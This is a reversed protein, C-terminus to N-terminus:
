PHYEILTSYGAANKSSTTVGVAWLGGGPVATISALGSDLGPFAPNAVLSWVGNVSQLILPAHVGAAIDLAWGVAWVSGDVAITVGFLDNEENAVSPTNQITLPGGMARAAVYTTHPATDTEQQAVVTLSSSTATVALPLATAADAPSAVVRWSRGDWHEILATNPFGASASQGVAYVDNSANAKV